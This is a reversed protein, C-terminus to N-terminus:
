YKKGDLKADINFKELMLDIIRKPTNMYQDYSRHMREM